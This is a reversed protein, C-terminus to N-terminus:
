EHSAGELKKAQARVWSAFKTRQEALLMSLAQNATSLAPLDLASIAHAFARLKEIDPAAAAIRAREAAEAAAKEEAAKAADAAKRLRDAEAAAAAAKKDAEAKEAAIREREKRNEEDAKAQALRNKEALAALEARSREEAAEREKKAAAERAEQEKRLKALEALRDAEKAAAEKKLREIELKREEQEKAAREREAAAAAAKEEAAKKAAEAAARERELRMEHLDRSDTLLRRYTDETIKGLDVAVPGNLYPAIENARRVRTEDEIRQREREPYTETEELQEEIAECDNRIEREASDLKKGIELIGAKLEKHIKGAQVRTAKFIDLRLRRAEKAKHLKTEATDDASIALRPVLAKAEAMTALLPRFREIGDARPMITLQAETPGDGAPIIETTPNPKM